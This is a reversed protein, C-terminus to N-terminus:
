PPRLVVSLRANAAAGAIEAAQNQAVSVVLVSGAASGSSAGGIFGTTSTSGAGPIALVVVDRAVVEASPPPTETEGEGPQPGLETSRRAALVDVHDGPSLFSAEAPDELRVPMAVHGSPGGELIGPGVLRSDLLMEGAVMPGALVRGTAEDASTIANNPQATTSLGVVTVDGPSITHGAPLDRSVVLGPWQPPEERLASLGFLVGVFACVFALGRRHRRIMRNLGGVSVM